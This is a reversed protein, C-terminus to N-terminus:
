FQPFYSPPANLHHHAWTHTQISHPVTSSGLTHAHATCISRPGTRRHPALLPVSSPSLTLKKLRWRAVPPFILLVQELSRRAGWGFYTTRVWRLSGSLCYGLNAGAASSLDACFRLVIDWRSFGSETVKRTGSVLASFFLRPPTPPSVFM